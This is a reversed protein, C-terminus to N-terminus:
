PSGPLPGPACVAASPWRPSSPRTWRTSERITTLWTSIATAVQGPAKLWRLHDTTGHLQEASLHVREVHQDPLPELLAAAARPPAYRDGHLTVSLVPLRLQRLLRDYDATATSPRWRGSIATRAWDSILRRPQRGGFGLRDGPFVGTVAAAARAVQTFALVALGTLAPYARWHITGAAPLAVGAIRGPNAAAYLLALQGGLSHGVLVAPTSPWRQDVYSVAAAVEGGILEQYGLDSDRRVTVPSDHSGPLEVTVVHRGSAVLARALRDYHRAPVGMAPVVVVAADAHGDGEVLRVPVDRGDGRVSDAVLESAGTVDVDWM